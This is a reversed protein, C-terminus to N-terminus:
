PAAPPVPPIFEPIDVGPPLVDHTAASPPPMSHDEPPPAIAAVREETSCARHLAEAHTQATWLPIGSDDCPWCSGTDFRGDERWSFSRGCLHGNLYDHQADLRGGRFFLWERGQAVGPQIFTTVTHPSGDFWFNWLRYLGGGPPAMGRYGYESLHDGSMQLCFGVAKGHEFTCYNQLRGHEDWTRELGHKVGQDFPTDQRTVGGRVTVMRGNPKKTTVDVCTMQTTDARTRVEVEAGNPCVSVRVVLHTALAFAIAVITM